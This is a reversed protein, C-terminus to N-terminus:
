TAQKPGPLSLSPSQVGVRVSQNEISILVEPRAGLAHRDLHLHTFPIIITEQLV